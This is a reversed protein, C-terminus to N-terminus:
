EENLCTGFVNATPNRLDTKKGTGIAIPIAGVEARSFKNSYNSIVVIGKYGSWVCGRTECEASVSNKGLPAKIYRASIMGLSGSAPLAASPFALNFMHLHM